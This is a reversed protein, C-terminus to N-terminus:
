PMQRAPLSSLQQREKGSISSTELKQGKEIRCVPVKILKNLVDPSNIFKLEQNRLTPELIDEPIKTKGAQGCSAASYDVPNFPKFPQGIQVIM